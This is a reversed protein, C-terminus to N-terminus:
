ELSVGTTGNRHPELLWNGQGPGYPCGGQQTCPRRTLWCCFTMEAAQKGHQRLRQRLGAMDVPGPRREERAPISGGARCGRQGRAPTAPELVRSAQRFDGTNGCTTSITFFILLLFVVDVM